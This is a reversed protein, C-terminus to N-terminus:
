WGRWVPIPDSEYVYVWPAQDPYEVFFDSTGNPDWTSATEDVWNWLWEEDGPPVNVCGHTRKMGFNNHYPMAHMGQHGNFFLVWSTEFVYEPPNAGPPGRMTMAATRAYIHFLGWTTELYYGSSILTAFIPRDDILAVLTQEYLDLAIWRGSVGDPRIPLQLVAIFQARMWEGPAILYWVEGAAEVSQYIYFLTERPIRRADTYDTEAPFVGPADSFYWARRQWGIPYDLPTDPLLVSRPIADGDRGAVYPVPRVLDPLPHAAMEADCAPSSPSEATLQACATGPAAEVRPRLKGARYPLAIVTLLILFSLIKARRTM